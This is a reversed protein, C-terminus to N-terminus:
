GGGVVAGTRVLASRRRAARAPASSRSREARLQDLPARVEAPIEGENARLDPDLDLAAGLEALAGEADGTAQHAVALHLYAHVLLPKHAPEPSLRRIADELTAIANGYDGAKVQAIGRAVDTEVGTPPAAAALASLALAYVVGTLVHSLCRRASNCAVAYLHISGCAIGRIRGM